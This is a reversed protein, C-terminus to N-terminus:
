QSQSGDDHIKPDDWIPESEGVVVALRYFWLQTGLDFTLETFTADPDEPPYTSLATQGVGGPLAPFRVTPPVADLGSAAIQFGALRAVKDIATGPDNKIRFQVVRGLFAPYINGDPFVQWGRTSSACSYSFSGSVQNFRVDVTCNPDSM